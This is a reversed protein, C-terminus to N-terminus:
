HQKLTSCPARIVVSFDLLIQQGLHPTESLQTLSSGFTEWVRSSLSKPDM